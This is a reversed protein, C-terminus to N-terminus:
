DAAILGRRTPGHLWAGDALFRSGHCPCDWTGEAENYEVACRMHTCHAHHVSTTGDFGRAVALHGRGHVRMVRGAGPEVDEPSGEGAVEEALAKFLFDASETALKGAGKVGLRTTSLMEALDHHEGAVLATLIDAAVASTTMGWGNFGTAMYCRDRGMMKGIYPLGDPTHADQTSWWRRVILEGFRERAAAELAAYCMREDGGQGSRHSAGSIILRHRDGYSRWAIEGADPSYWMGAPPDQEVEIEMAIFQMQVLTLPHRESRNVRFVFLDPGVRRISLLLM